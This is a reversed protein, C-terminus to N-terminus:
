RESQLVYGSIFDNTLPLVFVISNGCHTESINVFYVELSGGLSEKTQKRIWTCPIPLMMKLPTAVTVMVHHIKLSM